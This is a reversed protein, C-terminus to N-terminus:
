RAGRMPLVDASAVVAVRKEQRETLRGGKGERTITHLSIEIRRGIWEDTDPGFRDILDRRPRRQTDVGM